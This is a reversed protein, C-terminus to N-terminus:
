GAAALLISALSLIFSAICMAYALRLGKQNGTITKTNEEVARRIQGINNRM